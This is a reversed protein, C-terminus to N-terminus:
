FCTRQACVSHGQPGGSTLVLWHQIHHRALREDCCLIMSVADVALGQGRAPAWEENVDIIAGILNIENEM